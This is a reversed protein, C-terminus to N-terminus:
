IARGEVTRQQGEIVPGSQMIRGSQNAIGTNLAGSPGQIQSSPVNVKGSASNGVARGGSGARTLQGAYPKFQIKGRKGTEFARMAAAVQNYHGEGLKADPDVGTRSAVYGIYNRVSEESNDGLPAYKQIIQAVSMNAYNKRLLTEQAREGAQISDFKAFRGDSGVYGPQSRAFAGDEL